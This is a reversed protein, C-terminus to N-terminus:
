DAQAPAAGEAAVAQEAVKQLAKADLVAGSTGEALAPAAAFALLAIAVICTGMLPLLRRLRCNRLKSSTSM